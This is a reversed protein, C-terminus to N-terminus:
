VKGAKIYDVLQTLVTGGLVLDLEPNIKIISSNM